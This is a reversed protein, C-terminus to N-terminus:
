SGVNTVQPKILLGAAGGLYKPVLPVEHQCFRIGKGCGGCTDLTIITDSFKGKDIFYLLTEERVQMQAVPPNATKESTKPKDRRTRVITIEPETTMPKLSLIVDSDRADKYDAALMEAKTRRKRKPKDNLAKPDDFVTGEAEAKAIADKAAQSYRGVAGKERLGLKIAYELKTM